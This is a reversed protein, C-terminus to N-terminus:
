TGALPSVTVIVSVPGKAFTHGTAPSIQIVMTVDGTILDRYLTAGTSSTVDPHTAIVQYGGQSTQSEAATLAVAGSAAATYRYVWSSSHPEWTKSVLVFPSTLGQHEYGDAVSTRVASQNHATWVAFGWYLASILAVVLITAVVLYSRRPSSTSV